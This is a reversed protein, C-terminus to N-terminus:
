QFGVVPTEKSKSQKDMDNALKIAEMLVVSTARQSYAVMAAEMLLVLFCCLFGFVGSFYVCMALACLRAIAHRNHNEGLKLMRLATTPCDYVGDKQLSFSLYDIMVQLTDRTPPLAM